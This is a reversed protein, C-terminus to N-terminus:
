GSRRVHRGLYAKDKTALTRLNPVTYAISAMIPETTPYLNRPLGRSSPTPMGPNTANTATRNNDYGQKFEPQQVYRHEGGENTAKASAQPGEDEEEDETHGKKSANSPMHNAPLKCRVINVVFPRAQTEQTTTTKTPSQLVEPHSNGVVVKTGPFPHFYVQIEMERKGQHAPSQDSRVLYQRRELQRFQLAIPHIGNMCRADLGVAGRSTAQWNSNRQSTYNNLTVSNTGPRGRWQLSSFTVRVPELSCRLCISVLYM